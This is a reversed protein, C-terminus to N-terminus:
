SPVDTVVNVNGAADIRCLFPSGNTDLQDSSYYLAPCVAAAHADTMTPISLTGQGVLDLMAVVMGGPSAVTPELAVGDGAVIAADALNDAPGSIAVVKGVRATAILATLLGNGRFIVLNAPFATGLTEGHDVTLSLGGSSRAATVRCTAVVPTLYILAM